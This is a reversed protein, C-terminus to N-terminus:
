GSASVNSMRDRLLLQQMVMIIIVIISSRTDRV